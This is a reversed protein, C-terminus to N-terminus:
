IEKQFCFERSNIEIKREYAHINGKVNWKM